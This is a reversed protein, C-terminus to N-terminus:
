LVANILLIFIYHSFTMKFLLLVQKSALKMECSFNSSCICMAVCTLSFNYCSSSKNVLIFFTNYFFHTFNATQSSEEVVTQSVHACMCMPM